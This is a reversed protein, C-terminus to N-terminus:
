SVNQGGEVVAIEEPTLDYLKYVMQDIQKELDTTDVQGSKKKEIIQNATEEFEDQIVDDVVKIPIKRILTANISIYDGSLHKDYFLTRFLWSCLRSNLYSLIYLFKLNQSELVSYVNVGCAFDGNEDYYAEIEKAMGAIVIKPTEFLHWKDPSIVNSDYIIIPDELRRKNYRIPDSKINYRDISGSIIVRKKPLGEKGEPVGDFICRGYNTFQFGNIGPAVKVVDGLIVSQNFVKDILPQEKKSPLLTEFSLDKCAIIQEEITEMKGNDIKLARRSMENNHTKILEIVIPYVSVGDFVNTKSFDDISTLYQNQILHSLLAQSYKAILFKNPIIFKVIGGDKSLNIGCEIFLVYLDCNGSKMALYLNKFEKINEQMKEKHMKKNSVYPPNAIVIDFGDKQGFM